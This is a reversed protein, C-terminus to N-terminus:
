FFAARASAPEWWWRHLRGVFQDGGLFSLILFVFFPYFNHSAHDSMYKSFAFIHEIKIFDTIM